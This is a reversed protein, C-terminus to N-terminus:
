RGDRDQRAPRKRDKGTRDGLPLSSRYAYVSSRRDPDSDAQSADPASARQQPGDAPSREALQGAGLERWGRATARCREGVEPDEAVADALREFLGAAAFFALPANVLGRLLERGAPVANACELAEQSASLLTEYRTASAPDRCDKRLAELALVVRRVPLRELAADREPAPTPNAESERRLQEGRRYLARLRASDLRFDDNM